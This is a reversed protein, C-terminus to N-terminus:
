EAGCSPPDSEVNRGGTVRPIILPACGSCAYKAVM